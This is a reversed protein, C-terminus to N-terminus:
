HQIHFAQETILNRKNKAQIALTHQGPEVPLAVLQLEGPRVQFLSTRDTGDLLARFSAPDMAPDYYIVVPLAQVETPLPVNSALPQAFSFAGNAPQLGGSDIVMDCPDNRCVFRLAFPSGPFIPVNQLVALGHQESGQQQSSTENSIELTFSGNRAGKIQLVYKGATPREVGFSYPTVVTHAVATEDTDDDPVDVNDMDGYWSDSLTVPHGQADKFSVDLYADTQSGDPNTVQDAHIGVQLSKFPPPNQAPERSPSPGGFQFALPTITFIAPETTGAATTVTVKFYGLPSDPSNAYDATIQESSNVRINTFSLGPSPSAVRSGPVFNTGRLVLTGASGVTATNPVLERLTPRPPPSSPAASQSEHVSCGTALALCALLLALHLFVIPARPLTRINRM